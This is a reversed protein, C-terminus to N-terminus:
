GRADGVQVIRSVFTWVTAAVADPGPTPRQALAHLVAQRAGGVVMAGAASADVTKPVQGRAQGQRVNRAFQAAQQAAMEAAFRAAGPTGVRGSLVVPALPEDYCFRVYRAIREQERAAWDGDPALSQMALAAALRRYFGEVVASLLAAKSDFYRYVSGVASGSRQAVEAIEVHGDHLALSHAAANLIRERRPLTDAEM